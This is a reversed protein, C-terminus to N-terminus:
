RRCLADPSLSATLICCSRRMVNMHPCWVSPGSVKPRVVYTVGSLVGQQSVAKYKTRRTRLCHLLYALACRIKKQGTM